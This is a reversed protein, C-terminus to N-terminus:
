ANAEYEPCDACSNEAKPCAEVTCQGFVDCKRLKFVCPGTQRPLAPGLHICDRRAPHSQIPVLKPPGGKVIWTDLAQPMLKGAAVLQEVVTKLDSM